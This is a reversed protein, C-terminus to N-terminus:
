PAVRNVIGVTIRASQATSDVGDASGAHLVSENPLLNTKNKAPIHRQKDM